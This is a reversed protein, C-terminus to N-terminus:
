QQVKGVLLYTTPQFAVNVTADITVRDAAFHCPLTYVFPTEHYRPTIVFTNDDSWVGSAVISFFSMPNPNPRWRLIRLLSYQSCQYSLAARHSIEETRDPRTDGRPRQQM